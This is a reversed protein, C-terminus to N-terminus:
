SIKRTKGTRQYSISFREPDQRHEVILQFFRRRGIGLIDLIYNLPIERSLYRALLSRVQEDTFRKHLQEAM